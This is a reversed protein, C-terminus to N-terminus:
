GAASTAKGSPKSELPLDVPTAGLINFATLGSVPSGLRKYVFCSFRAGVILFLIPLCDTVALAEPGVSLTFFKTSLTFM